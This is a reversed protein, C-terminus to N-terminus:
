APYNQCKYRGQKDSGNKDATLSREGSLRNFTRLELTIVVEFYNEMQKFKLEIATTM